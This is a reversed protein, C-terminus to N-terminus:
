AEDEEVKWLVGCSNCAVIRIPSGEIEEVPQQETHLFGCNPCVVNKLNNSTVTM